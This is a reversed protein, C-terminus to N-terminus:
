GTRSPISRHRSGSRPELHHHCRSGAGDATGRPCHCVAAATVTANAGPAVAIMNEASSEVVVLAVGTTVGDHAVLIHDLAVSETALASLAARGFEDDGVAGVLSIPAGLRAAAVAQNGGKGGPSQLFRGGLVTEGATPLHSVEVILDVNVSGVVVVRGRAM